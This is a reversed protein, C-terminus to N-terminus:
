KTLNKYVKKGGLAEYFLKISDRIDDQINFRQAFGSWHYMDLLKLEFGLGYRKIIINDSHLDGHYGNLNHILELGSVLAHLLHLARFVGIRKGPHRNLFKSLLEGDVYESILCYVKQDNFMILENTHYHILIQCSSLKHLMKAYRIAVKNNKNRHPFFLKAARIIGTDIEEIKYVEGEFGGGLFSVVRYKGALLHGKPFRFANIINSQRNAM